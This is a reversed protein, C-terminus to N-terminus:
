RKTPITLLYQVQYDRAATRTWELEDRPAYAYLSIIRNNLLAMCATSAQHVRQFGTDIDVLMSFSLSLDTEAHVELFEM